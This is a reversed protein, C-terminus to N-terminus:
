DYYEDLKIKGDRTITVRVGDGFMDEMDDDDFVGLAKEVDEKAGDIDAPDLDAYGHNSSFVCPDGDNFSPTGQTWSVEELEEHKKFVKAM